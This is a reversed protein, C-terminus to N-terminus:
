GESEGDESDEESEQAALDADSGFMREAMRRREEKEEDIEEIMQDVEEDSKGPYVERIMQKRTIIGLSNKKEVVELRDKDSELPKLSGFETSVQFDDSFRGLARAESSLFGKDFYWNHIKALKPWFEREVDRFVPIDSERAELTDATEILAQFGSSFNRASNTGGIEKPNMDNTSLLLGLLEMLIEKYESLPSNAQVYSISPAPGDDPQKLWVAKNIGVSMKEPKDKSVITLISFGQNKAITLLDSWGSQIAIVLDVVDSGQTAWFSDDRDKAVNVIPNVGFPNEGNNFEDLLPVGAANTTFHQQDTWFVYRDSADETYRENSDVMNKSRNQATGRQKSFGQVGTAPLINDELVVDEDFFSFIYADAKLPDDPNAKASYLYPPLVRYSFDREGLLPYLIANAQLNYYINAKKLLNDADFEEVYYDLLDQDRQNGNSAIRKPARKYITSRKNVIKKLLNIPALRMEKISDRGFEENIKEILFDMGGDRYIKQRRKALARRTTEEQQQIEQVVKKIEAQTLIAM